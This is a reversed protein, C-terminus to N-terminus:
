RDGRLGDLAAVHLEVLLAHRDLLRIGGRRGLLALHHLVLRLPLLGQGLLTFDGVTAIPREPIRVRALVFDLKGFRTRERRDVVLELRRLGVHARQGLAARNERFLFCAAAVLQRDHLFALEFPDVGLERLLFAQDHLLLLLLVGDGRLVVRVLLTPAFHTRALIRCAGGCGGRGGGRLGAVRGG